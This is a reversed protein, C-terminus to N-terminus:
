KVPISKEVLLDLFADLSGEETFVDKPIFPYIREQAKYIMLFFDGGDIIKQFKEWDFTTTRDGVVMIMQENSITFEREMKLYANKKYSQAFQLPVIAVFYLIYFAGIMLVVVAISDWSPEGVGPVFMVIASAIMGVFLIVAMTMFGPSKRALVRTARVYDKQVPTFHLNITQDM